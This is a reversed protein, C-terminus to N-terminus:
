FRRNKTELGTNLKNDNVGALVPKLVELLGNHANEYQKRANGNESLGFKCYPKIILEQIIPIDFKVGIFNIQTLLMREYPDIYSFGEINNLDITKLERIPEKGIGITQNFKAQIEDMENISDDM